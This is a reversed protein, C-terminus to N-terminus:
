LSPPQVYKMFVHTFLRWTTREIDGPSSSLSLHRLKGPKTFLVYMLQIKGQGSCARCATECDNMSLTNSM